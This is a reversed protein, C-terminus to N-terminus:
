KRPSTQLVTKFNQIYMMLPASSDSMVWMISFDPDTWRGSLCCESCFVRTRLFSPMKNTFNMKKNLKEMLM